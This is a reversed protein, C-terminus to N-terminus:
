VMQRSSRRKVSFARRLQGWQMEEWWRRLCRAMGTISWLCAPVPGWWSVEFRLMLTHGHGGEPGRCLRSVGPNPLSVLAVDATVLRARFQGITAISSVYAGVRVPRIKVKGPGQM